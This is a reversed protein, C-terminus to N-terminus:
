GGIELISVTQSASSAIAWIQHATTLDMNLADGAALYYGTSATVASSNGVYVSSGPMAKISVSKRNTLPSVTLQVASTGVTQQSTQFSPLGEQIVNLSGDANIALPQGAATEIAISDTAASIDIAFSGSVVDVQLANEAENYVYRLVQQSDQLSMPNAM